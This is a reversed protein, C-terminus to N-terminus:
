RIKPSRSTESPFLTPKSITEAKFLRNFLRSLIHILVLTLPSEFTFQSAMSKEEMRPTKQEELSM